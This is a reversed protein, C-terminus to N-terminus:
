GSGRDAAACPRDADFYARGVAAGPSAALGTALLADTVNGLQPHLVQDLHEPSM